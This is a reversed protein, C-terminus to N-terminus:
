RRTKKARPRRPPATAQKEPAKGGTREIQITCETLVAALAGIAALAPAAIAGVVGVTLPFEAVSKGQHQIVIRRVNGERVLDKVRELLEAGEVKVSEWITKAPM